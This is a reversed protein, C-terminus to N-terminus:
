SVSAPTFGNRRTEASRGSLSSIRLTVIKTAPVRDSLPDPPKIRKAVILSRRGPKRDGALSRRSPDQEDHPEALSLAVGMHSKRRQPSWVNLMAKSSGRKLNLGPSPRMSVGLCRRRRVSSGRPRFVGTRLRQREDISFHVGRGDEFAPLAISYFSIIQEPSVRNNVM